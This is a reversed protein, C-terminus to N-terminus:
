GGKLQIPLKYFAPEKGIGLIYYPYRPEYYHAQATNQSWLGKEQSSANLLILEDLNYLNNPHSDVPDLSKYGIMWIFSISAREYFNESNLPSGKM